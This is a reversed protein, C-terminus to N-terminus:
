DVKLGFIGRVRKIDKERPLAYIGARSVAPVGLRKRLDVITEAMKVAISVCDLIPAHVEEVEVVGSITCLPGLGNCGVVVVDAGEDVCKKAKDLIDSAVIGPEQMGRTFVEKESLSIGRVANSIACDRLGYMKIEAEMESILTRENVTVVAFQRGLLCALHMTSEGLGVVPISAIARAERVGPDLFCGVIAADYGEKDAEIVREVIQRKNLFSLYYYGLDYVRNLGPEVSKIGIETDPAAVKQFVKEVISLYPGSVEETNINVYCIRTM